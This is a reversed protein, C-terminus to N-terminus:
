RMPGRWRCVGVNLMVPYIVRYENGFQWARADATVSLTLAYDNKAVFHTGLEIGLDYFNVGGSPNDHKKIDRTWLVGNGYSFASGLYPRVPGKGTTFLKNEVMLIVYGASADRKGFSGMDPMAWWDGGGGLEVGYFYKYDTTKTKNSMTNFGFMVDGGPGVYPPQIAVYRAALFQLNRSGYLSPAERKVQASAAGALLLGLGLALAPATMRM